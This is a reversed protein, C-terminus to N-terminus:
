TQVFRVRTGPGLVAPPDDGTRWLVADTRAIIQWGGPGPRPYVGSWADALGVAGPPVRTRPTSRRPVRLTASEGSLYGFGPSFGCFAVTWVQGTHAAIVETPTLRTLRAVEDLDEGDYRTSLEVIRERAQPPPPPDLSALDAALADTLTGRVLLTRAGPVVEILQTAHRKRVAAALALVEPTGACEVLVAERGYPLVNRRM